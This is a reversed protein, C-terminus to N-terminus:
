LNLFVFVITQHGKKLVTETLGMQRYLKKINPKNSFFTEALNVFLFPSKKGYSLM